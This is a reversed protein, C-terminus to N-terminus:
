KLVGYNLTPTGTVSKAFVKVTNKIDFAFSQGPTLQLTQAGTDGILIDDTNDPDSQIIVAVCSIDALAAKTTTLGLTEGTLVDPRYRGFGM